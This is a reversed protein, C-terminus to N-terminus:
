LNGTYVYKLHERAIDVLSYIKEPPTPPRDLMKFRPFFRSLHLPIDPSVSALWSALEEMEDESDNLGPIILTTVEVHCCSAAMEITHKVHGSLGGCLKRYFADRFSKLDINFADIFPLLEQLPERCIYGNTVVVNKLGKEHALRCCDYVYEYGILPENYTYAIGINGEPVLELAKDVLVEPLVHISEPWRDHFAERDDDVASGMSITHNQCFRCRFNCGYSGASLIYSGPHFRALPKKEIPDLALATIQGYSSAILTGGDNQRVGCIGTHGPRIECGHPCLRCRVMANDLKEYYLAPHSTGVAM